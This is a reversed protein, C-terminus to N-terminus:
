YTPGAPGFEMWEGGYQNYTGVTINEGSSTQNFTGGYQNLTTITRDHGYGGSADLKGAILNATTITGGKSSFRFVAKPGLLDLTAIAGAAASASLHNWEGGGMRLLTDVDCYNDVIGGSQYVNDVDASAEILLRGGMMYTNTVVASAGVRCMEGGSVILNTVSGGAGPTCIKLANSFSGSSQVVVRTIVDSADPAIYFGLCRRSNFTVSTTNGVYLPNAAEAVQGEWNRGVYISGYAVGNTADPVNDTIISSGELFKVDDDAGPVGGDWNGAVSWDTASANGKWTITAM